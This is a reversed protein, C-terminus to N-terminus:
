LSIPKTDEEVVQIPRNGLESSPLLVGLIDLHIYIKEETGYTLHVPPPDTCKGKWNEGEKINTYTTASSAGKHPSQKIHIHTYIYTYVSVREMYICM